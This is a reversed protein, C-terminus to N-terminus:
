RVLYEGIALYDLGSEKFARVADAPTRVIPEEHMNFSTNIVMPIGTIKEYESIISYFGMNDRPVLQPRATGDVHVVGKCTKKMWPTCDFTITMFRATRKAGKVGTFCKDAMDEMVAPAFPMYETRKLKRNLWDNVSKDTPQYLISRNGLARPGFEMRGDFRCVVKGDALAKAIAQALNKPKEVKMGQIAKRIEDDHVDTGLFVDDLKVPDDGSELLAAGAGLGGDDMQPFVYVSKVGPIEHIRQNLKVNAFVGGALVIDKVPSKRVHPSIIRLLERETGAQLWAAVDKKLYMRLKEEVTKYGKRGFGWDYREGRIPFSVKVAEAKGYAALGTVKGEHRHPRLGLFATVLSYFEGLSSKCNVEHLLEISRGLCRSITLYVGDGSGDCTIALAEKLGSTFYASASHCLHHDFYGIPVSRLSPPLDRRIAVTLLPMLGPQIWRSPKMWTIGSRHEIFDKVLDAASPSTPDSEFSGPRFLRLLPSPTVIGGIAISTISKPDHHRLIEKISQKPFGGQQKRRTIREETIAYVIRGDEVLVAGSNIRGDSIGLVGM